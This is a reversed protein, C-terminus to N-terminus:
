AEMKILLNPEFKKACNRGIPFCGQSNKEDSNPIMLKWDTDVEFYLPNKGLKSACLTCLDEYSDVAKRNLPAYDNVNYEYTM